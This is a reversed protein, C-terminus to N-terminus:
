ARRWWARQHDDSRAPPPIIGAAEYFRITEVPVGTQRAITGVTLKTAM